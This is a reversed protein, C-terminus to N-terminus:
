RKRERDSEEGEKINNEENRESRMMKQIREGKRKGKERVRQM